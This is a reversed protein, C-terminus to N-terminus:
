VSSLLQQWKNMMMHRTGNNLKWQAKQSVKSTLHGTCSCSDRQYFMILAKIWSNFYIFLKSLCVKISNQWLRTSIKSFCICLHISLRIASLEIIVRFRTWSIQTIPDTPIESSMDMNWHKAQTIRPHTPVLRWHKTIGNSLFLLLARYFCSM